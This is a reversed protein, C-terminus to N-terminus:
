QVEYYDCSPLFQQHSEKGAQVANEAEILLVDPLFRRQLYFKIKQKWHVLLM